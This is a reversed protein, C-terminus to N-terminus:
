QILATGLPELIEKVSPDTGLIGRRRVIVTKSTCHYKVTALCCYGEMESVRLYLQRPGKLMEKEFVLNITFTSM